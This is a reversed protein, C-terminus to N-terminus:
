KVLSFGLADIRGQEGVITPILISELRPHHAIQRNFQYIANASVNSTKPNDIEEGKPILNDSLILTGPASLALAHELYIPYNEKDADIFILDFPGEGKKIMTSLLDLAKGLRIEVRNHYGARALHERALKAHQPELELSIITGEKPLAKALWLTSYGGLTGIELIKTPTHSKALLYILQGVHSAVHIQPLGQLQSNERAYRLHPDEKVFLSHIYNKIASTDM